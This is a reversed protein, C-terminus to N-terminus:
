DEGGKAILYGRARESLPYREVLAWFEPSHDAVRLHALEHVIVYDIVCQVAVSSAVTCLAFVFAGTVAIAFYRPQLRM